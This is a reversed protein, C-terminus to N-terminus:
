KDPVLPLAGLPIDMERVEGNPLEIVVEAFLMNHAGSITRIMKPPTSLGLGYLSLHRNTIDQLRRALEDYAEPNEDLPPFHHPFKGKSQMTGREENFSQSLNRKLRRFMIKASESNNFEEKSPFMIDIWKGLVEPGSQQYHFDPIEYEKKFNIATGNERTVQFRFEVYQTRSKEPSSVSRLWPTGLIQVGTKNGLGVNFADKAVEMAEQNRESGPGVYGRDYKKFQGAGKQVYDIGYALFHSMLLDGAPEDILDLADQPILSNEPLFSEFRVERPNKPDPSLDIIYEESSHIIEVYDLIQPTQTYAVNVVLAMGTKQSPDYYSFSTTIDRIRINNFEARQNPASMLVNFSGKTQIPVARSLALIHKPDSNSVPFDVRGLQFQSQIEKKLLGLVHTRIRPSYHPLLPSGISFDAREPYEGGIIPSILATTYVGETKHTATVQFSVSAPYFDSGSGIRHILKLEDDVLIEINPDDILHKVQTQVGAILQSSLPPNYLFAQAEAASNVSRGNLSAQMALTAKTDVDRKWPQAPIKDLLFSTAWGRGATEIFTRNSPAKHAQIQITPEFTGEIKGDGGVKFELKYEPVTVDMLQGFGTFIAREISLSLSDILSQVDGESEISKRIRPIGLSTSLSTEIMGLVMNQQRDTVAGRFDLKKPLSPTLKQNSLEYKGGTQVPSSGVEHTRDEEPDDSFGPWHGTLLSAGVGAFALGGVVIGTNRLWKKLRTSPRLISNDPLNAMREEEREKEQQARLAEAREHVLKAEQVPDHTAKFMNPDTTPRATQDMIEKVWRRRVIGEFLTDFKKRDADLGKEIRDSLRNIRDLALRIGFLEEYRAVVSALNRRIMQKPKRMGAVRGESNLKDEIPRVSAKFKKPSGTPNELTALGVGWDGSISDVLHHLAAQYESETRELRKECAQVIENRNKWYIALDLAWDLSGETVGKMEIKFPTNGPKRDEVDGGDTPELNVEMSFEVAPKVSEPLEQLLGYIQLARQNIQTLQTAFSPFERLFELRNDGTLPGFVTKGVPLEIGSDGTTPSDLGM